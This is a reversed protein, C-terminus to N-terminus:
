MMEFRSPQTRDSYLCNKERKLDPFFLNRKEFVALSGAVSSIVRSLGQYQGSNFKPATRLRRAKADRQSGKRTLLQMM